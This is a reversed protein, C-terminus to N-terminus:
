TMEASWSVQNTKCATEYKLCIYNVVVDFVSNFEDTGQTCEKSEGAM